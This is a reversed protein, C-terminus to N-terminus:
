SVVTLLEDDAHVNFLRSDINNTLLNANETAVSWRSSYRTTAGAMKVRNVIRDAMGSRVLFLVGGVVMVVLMLSLLWVVATPMGGSQSESNAEASSDDGSKSSNNSSPTSNSPVTTTGPSLTTTSSPQPVPIATTTTTSYIAELCTINTRWTFVAKCELDEMVSDPVPHGYGASMDCEFFISSTKKGTLGSSCTDGGYYTLKLSEFKWEFQSQESLGYSEQTDDTCVGSSNCVSGCVNLLFIRGQFNSTYGQPRFLPSLQINTKAEDHRIRCADQDPATM